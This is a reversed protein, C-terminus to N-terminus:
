FLFVSTFSLYLRLFSFRFFFSSFFNLPPFSLFFILSAFFSLSLFVFFLLFLHIFSLFNFRSTFESFVLVILLPSYICCRIYCRGETRVEAWDSFLSHVNPHIFPSPVSSYLFSLAAGDGGGGDDPLRRRLYQLSRSRLVLFNVRGHTKCKLSWRSHRWCDLWLRALHFMYWCEKRAVGQCNKVLSGQFPSYLLHRPGGVSPLTSRNVPRLQHPNSHIHDVFAFPFLHYFRLSNLFTAALPPPPYFNCSFFNQPVKLSRRAGWYRRSLPRVGSSLNM